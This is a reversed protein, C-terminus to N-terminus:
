KKTCLCCILIEQVIYYCIRFLFYNWIIKMHNNIIISNSVLAKFPLAM